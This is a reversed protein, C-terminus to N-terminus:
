RRMRAKSNGSGGVTCASFVDCLHAFAKPPAPLRHPVVRWINRGAIEVAVPMRVERYDDDICCPRTVTRKDEHHKVPWRLAGDLWVKRLRGRYARCPDKRRSVAASAAGGRSPLIQTRRNLEAVRRSKTDAPTRIVGAAPSATWCAFPASAPARSRARSM